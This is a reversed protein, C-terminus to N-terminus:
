GLFFQALVPALVDAPAGHGQGDLSRCTANPLLKAIAAVANRLV